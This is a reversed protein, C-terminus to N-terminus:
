EEFGGFDFTSLIEDVQSKITAQVEKSERVSKIDKDAFLRRMRATCDSLQPDQTINLKDMLNALDLANDLLSQFLKPARRPM